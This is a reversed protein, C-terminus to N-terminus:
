SPWLGLRALEALVGGSVGGKRDAPDFESEAVVIRLDAMATQLVLM